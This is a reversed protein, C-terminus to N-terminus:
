KEVQNVFSGAKILTSGKYLNYHYVGDSLTSLDLTVSSYIDKQLVAQGRTNFISISDCLHDGTLFINLYGPAPNPYVIVEGPPHRDIVGTISFGRFVMQDILWGDKGTDTADSRFRFRIKQERDFPQPESKRTLGLWFWYIEVYAWGAGTGTFAPIGGTITDNLGYLGICRTDIPYIGPFIINDWKEEIENYVEIYGGDCSNDTSYQHYFSLIGEGWLSDWYPLTLEFYCDADAPYGNGTKTVIFHNNSLTSGFFEKALSGTQWINEEPSPIIIWESLPDMTLTDEFLLDGFTSNIQCYGPSYFYFLVIASLFIKKM